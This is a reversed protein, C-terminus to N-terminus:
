SLLGRRRVELFKPWGFLIPHKRQRESLELRVGQHRELKDLVYELWNDVTMMYKPWRLVGRYRSWRLFAETRARASPTPKPQAYRGPGTLEPWRHEAAHATLLEPYVRLYYERSAEFLRTVKEPEAVREEGLYSLSLQKLVFRELTFEAPLLALSHPVLALMSQLAGSIVTEAAAEDRSYVLAFRKSFRGLHHVDHARASTERTFQDVTMVCFKCRLGDPFSAYYVNPPLVLGLGAHLLARPYRLPDDTLV